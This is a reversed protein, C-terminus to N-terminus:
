AKYWVEVIFVNKEEFFIYQRTGRYYNSTPPAKIVKFPTLPGKFVKM